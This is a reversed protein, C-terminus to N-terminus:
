KIWKSGVCLSPRRHVGSGMRFSEQRSIGRGPSDGGGSLDAGGARAKVVVAPVAADSCEGKKQDQKRRSCEKHTESTTQYSDSLKVRGPCSPHSGFNLSSALM